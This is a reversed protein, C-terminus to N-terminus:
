SAMKSVPRDHWAYDDGGRGYVFAFRGNAFAIADVTVSLSYTTEDTPLVLIQEQTTVDIVRINCADGGFALFTHGGELTSGANNSAVAEISSRQRQLLLPSRM